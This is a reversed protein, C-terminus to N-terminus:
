PDEIQNVVYVFGETAAYIAGAILVGLIWHHVQYLIAATTLWFVLAWYHHGNM